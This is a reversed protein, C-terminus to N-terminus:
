KTFLLSAYGVVSGYDGTIDGSTKYCLLEAKQAGLRRAAVVTAMVPGPGCMSVANSEVAEQVDSEQLGQIAEIVRHDKVSAVRQPEYHTLDTSAIIVTNLGKVADAIAEGVERSTELDQMLFCIPVIRVAGYIYQLFPLQVEVSHEFRHAQEDVDILTSAKVIQAAVESYVEADGLPTRWVGEVMMSVGSGFGTHNPGLIIFVDPRGDDALRHYAHSAVPGSYMYGAHPSILALVQRPGDERLRPLSGVGLTHSFCAEVQKKLAEPRADYFTGATRPFRIKM